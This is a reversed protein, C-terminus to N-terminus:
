KTLKGTDCGSIVVGHGKPNIHMINRRKIKHLILYVIIMGIIYWLFSSSFIIYPFIALVAYFAYSFVRDDM